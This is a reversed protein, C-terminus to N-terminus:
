RHWLDLLEDMSFRLMGACYNALSSRVNGEPLLHWLPRARHACQARGELYQLDCGASVCQILFDALPTASALAAQLGELGHARVFSDPDHDDPLLVFEITSTDSALPLVTKLAREAAHQGAKDGDFCFVLRPALTLLETIQHRSCTTGLMGVVPAFGSQAVSVVDLYGEVLVALGDVQIAHQAEYLGYLLEGKRFTAGEPSNLYKPDDEQAIVRGGFGAVDGARNRIPFMVRGRFRDYRRAHPGDGSVALLGSALVTGEEYRQLVPGLDRWKPRAFGLDFRAATAGSIGRGLLYRVAQPSARLADRYHAAADALLAHVRAVPVDYHDRQPTPGSGWTRSSTLNKGRHWASNGRTGAMDGAGGLGAPASPRDAAEAASVM